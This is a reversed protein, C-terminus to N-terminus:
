SGSPGKSQSVPVPDGALVSLNQILAKWKGLTDGALNQKIMIELIHPVIASPIEAKPRDVCFPLIELLQKMGAIAIIAPPTNGDVLKVIESFADIVKTLDELMIPNVQIKSGDPCPVKAYPFLVELEGVGKKPDKATM